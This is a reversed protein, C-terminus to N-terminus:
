DRGAGGGPGAQAGNTALSAYYDWGEALNSTLTVTHIMAAGSTLPSPM